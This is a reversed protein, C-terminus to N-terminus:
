DGKKKSIVLVVVIAIAAVALVLGVVGVMDGTAPNNVVANLM